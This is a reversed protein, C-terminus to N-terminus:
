DDNKRGTGVKIKTSGDFCKKLKEDGTADQFSNAKSKAEKEAGKPERKTSKQKM